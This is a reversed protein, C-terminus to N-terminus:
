KLDESDLFALFQECSYKTLFLTIVDRYRILTFKKFNEAAYNYVIKYKKYSNHNLDFSDPDPYIEKNFGKTLQNAIDSYGSGTRGTLGIITFNSRLQYIPSLDLGPQM